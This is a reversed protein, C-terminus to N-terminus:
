MTVDAMAKAYRVSDGAGRRADDPRLLLLRRSTVDTVAVQLRFRRRWDGGDAETM